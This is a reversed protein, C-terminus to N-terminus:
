LLLLLLMRTEGRFGILLTAGVGIESTGFGTETLALTFITAGLMLETGITDCVSCSFIGARGGFGFLLGSISVDVADGVVDVVDDDDVDGLLADLEFALTFTLLGFLASSNLRNFVTALMLLVGAVIATVTVADTAAQEAAGVTTLTTFLIGATWGSPRLWWAWGAM